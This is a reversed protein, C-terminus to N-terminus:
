RFRFTQIEREIGRLLLPVFMRSGHVCHIFDPVYFRRAQSDVDYIGAKPQTLSPDCGSVADHAKKTEETQLEMLM